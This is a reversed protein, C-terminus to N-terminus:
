GEISVAFRASLSVDTGAFAEVTPTWGNSEFQDGFIKLTKFDIFDGTQRLQYWMVGGGGGVYPAYRRPVWAFRGFSRGPEGLYAKV